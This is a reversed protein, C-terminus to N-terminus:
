IIKSVVCNVGYKHGAFEAIPTNLGEQIDWVRVSPQHGCEGTALYRGDSSFALCTITKRSTNLLHTQRGKRSHLLVV